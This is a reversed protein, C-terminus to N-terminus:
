KIKNKVKSECRNWVSSSVLLCHIGPTTQTVINNKKENQNRAAPRCFSLEYFLVRRMKRIYYSKIWFRICLCATCLACRERCARATGDFLFCRARKKKKQFIKSEFWLAISVCNQFTSEPTDLPVPFPRRSFNSLQFILFIPRENLPRACEIPPIRESKLFSFLNKKKLNLSTQFILLTYHSM